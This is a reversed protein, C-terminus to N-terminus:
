ISNERSFETDKYLSVLHNSLGERETELNSTKETLSQFLNM